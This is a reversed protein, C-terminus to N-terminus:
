INGSKRGGFDVDSIVEIGNEELITSTIGKGSVKKGTFSGDYIYNVGSESGTTVRTGGDSESEWNYKLVITEPMDSSYPTITGLTLAGYTGVTVPITAANGAANTATITATGAGVSTIVIGSGTVSATAVSSASSTVKTAVIGLTAENNTVTETQAEFSVVNSSFDDAADLNTVSISNLYTNGTAELLVYGAKSATYTAQQEGGLLYNTDYVNVTVESGASVPIQIKTGTNFQADTGRSYLKGNAADVKLVFDTKPTNNIRAKLRPIIQYVQNDFFKELDM